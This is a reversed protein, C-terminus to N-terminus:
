DDDQVPLDEDVQDVTLRVVYQKNYTDMELDELVAEIQEALGRAPSCQEDETVLTIDKLRM